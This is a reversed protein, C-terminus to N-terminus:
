THICLEKVEGDLAHQGTGGKLQIPGTDRMIFDSTAISQNLTVINPAGGDVAISLDRPGKAVRLLHWEGTTIKPTFIDRTGWGNPGVGAKTHIYFSITGYQGYPAYAPGCGTLSLASNGDGTRVIAPYDSTNFSNFKVKVTFNFVSTNLGKAPLACCTPAPYVKKAGGCLAGGVCKNAGTPLPCTFVDEDMRCCGTINAFDFAPLLGTLQNDSLEIYNLQNLQALEKPVPGTLQNNGLALRRLGTLMGITSPITGNLLNGVVRLDTLRTLMGITSPISGTFRNSQASVGDMYQDASLDLFTLATLKEIADLPGRLNNHQLEITTLKTLM